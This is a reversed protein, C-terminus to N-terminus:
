IGIRQAVLERHYAPDGFLLGSTKARKLHLHADHEWTFGIGGHVQITAGAVRFYADSCFAKAMSAAAGLREPEHSAAWGAYRAASRASEVELLMDACKHKIAQFSGIPRGFQMRAKAYAVSLDLCRRAGGAQEAALAVAALDLARRLATEASDGACLLRAPTAAFELRAQRRTPDMTPLVTRTLGPADGDVALLAIGDGTRAAVVILGALHGDIVYSKHGSVAWGDGSRSAALGIGGADWRGGDEAVALTGIVQGSALGPLLDARAQQDDAALVAGAALVAPLLPAGLLAAGTEELVVALEAWGYGGGGYEEPIALGTLGLDGALQAWVAPDHGGATDMLVRVATMPSKDALFRAVSERLEELEPRVAFGALVSV